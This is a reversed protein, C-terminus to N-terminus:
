HGCLRWLRCPSDCGSPHGQGKLALTVKDFPSVVITGCGPSSFSINFRWYAPGSSSCSSGLRARLDFCTTFAALSSAPTDRALIPHKQTQQPAAATHAQSLWPWTISESRVQGIHSCTLMSHDQLLGPDDFPLCSALTLDQLPYRWPDAGPQAVALMSALQQLPRLPFLQHLGRHFPRGQPPLLSGPGTHLWTCGKM